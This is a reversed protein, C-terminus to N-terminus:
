PSLSLSLSFLSSSIKCGFKLLLLPMAMAAIAIAM